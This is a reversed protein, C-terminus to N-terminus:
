FSINFYAVDITFICKVNYFTFIYKIEAFYRMGSKFKCVNSLEPKHKIHKNLRICSYTM